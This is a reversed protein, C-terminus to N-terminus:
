RGCRQQKAPLPNDMQTLGSWCSTPASDASPLGTCCCFSGPTRQSWPPGAPPRRGEIDESGTSLPLLLRGSEFPYGVAPMAVALVDPRKSPDVIPALAAATASGDARPSEAVSPGSDSHVVLIRRRESSSRQFAATRPGDPDPRAAGDDLPMSTPRKGLFSYHRGVAAARGLRRDRDPAEVEGWDRPHPLWRM